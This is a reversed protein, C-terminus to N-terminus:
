LEVMYKMILSLIRIRDEQNEPMTFDVGKIKLYSKAVGITPKNLYFSAHTAIGMHRYHLYGNGDFM